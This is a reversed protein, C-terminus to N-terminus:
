EDFSFIFIILIKPQAQSCCQIRRLVNTDLIIRLQLIADKRETSNCYVTCMSIYSFLRIGTQYNLSASM